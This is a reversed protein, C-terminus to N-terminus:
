ETARRKKLDRVQDEVTEGPARHMSLTMLLYAAKEDSPLRGRELMKGDTGGSMALGDKGNMDEDTTSSDEDYEEDAHHVRKPKTPTKPSIDPSSLESSSGSLYRADRKNSANIGAGIDRPNPLRASSDGSRPTVPTWVNRYHDHKSSLQYKDDRVYSEPSYGRPPPTTDLKLTKPRLEKYPRPHTPTSPTLPSPLMPSSRASAGRSELEMARYVAAEETCRKTIEHDLIMDGYHPDDPPLCSDPFDLGFVPTLAYRMKWCFTAAIAKAAEYPM